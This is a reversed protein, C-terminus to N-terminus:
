EATGLVIRQLQANFGKQVMSWPGVGLGHKDWRSGGRRRGWGQLIGTGLARGRVEYDTVEGLTDSSVKGARVRGGGELLVYADKAAEGPAYEVRHIQRLRLPIKEDVAQAFRNANSSSRAGYGCADMVERSSLEPVDRSQVLVFAGNLLPQSTGLKEEAWQQVEIFNLLEEGAVHITNVNMPTPLLVEQLRLTPCKVRQWM